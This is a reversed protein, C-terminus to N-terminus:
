ITAVLWPQIILDTRKNLGFTFHTPLLSQHANKKQHFYIYAARSSKSGHKGIDREIGRITVGIACGTFNIRTLSEKYEVINAGEMLIVSALM